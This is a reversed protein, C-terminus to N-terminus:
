ISKVLTEVPIHLAKSLNRVMTLSLSIKRIINKYLQEDQFFIYFLEKEKGLKNIYNNLYDFTTKQIYVDERKLVRDLKGLYNM